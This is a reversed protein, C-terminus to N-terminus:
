DFATHLDSQIQFVKAELLSKKKIINSYRCKKSLYYNPSPIIIVYIGQFLNKDKLTLKIDQEASKCERLM